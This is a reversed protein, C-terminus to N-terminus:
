IRIKVKKGRLLSLHLISHHKACLTVSELPSYSIEHFVLNITTNCFPVECKAKRIYTFTQQKEAIRVLFDLAEKPIENLKNLRQKRKWSPKYKRQYENYEKNHSKRWNNSSENLKRKFEPDNHYKNKARERIYKKWGEYRCKDSCYKTKPYKTEFENKCWECIKRM